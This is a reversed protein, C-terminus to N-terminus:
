AGHYASGHACCNACRASHYANRSNCGAGRLGGSYRRHLELCINAQFHCCDQEVHEVNTLKVFEFRVGM